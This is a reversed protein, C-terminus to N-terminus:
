QSNVAIANVAERIPPVVSMPPVVTRVDLYAWSVPHQEFPVYIDSRPEWLNYGRRNKAIGVIEISQASGTAKGSYVRAM